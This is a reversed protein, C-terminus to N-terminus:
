YGLLLFKLLEAQDREFNHAVGTLPLFCGLMENRETKIDDSTDPILCDTLHFLEDPTVVDMQLLVQDLGIFEDIVTEEIPRSLHGCEEFGSGGVLHLGGLESPATTSGGAIQTM